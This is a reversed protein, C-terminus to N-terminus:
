NLPAKEEEKKKWRRAREGRTVHHAESQPPPRTWLPPTENMFVKPELSDVIFHGCVVRTTNARRRSGGAHVPSSSYTLAAKVAKVAKVARGRLETQKM